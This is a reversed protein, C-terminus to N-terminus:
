GAPANIDLVRDNKGPAAPNNVCQRQGVAAYRISQIHAPQSRYDREDSDDPSNIVRRLVKRARDRCKQPARVLPTNQIRSHKIGAGDSTKRKKMWNGTALAAVHAIFM